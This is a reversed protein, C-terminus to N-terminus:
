SQLLQADQLILEHLHLPLPLRPNTYCRTMFVGGFHEPIAPMRLPDHIM